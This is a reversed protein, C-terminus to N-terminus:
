LAFGTDGKWSPAFANQIKVLLQGARCLSIETPLKSGVSFRLPLDVQNLAFRHILNAEGLVRMIGHRGAPPWFEFDGSFGAFHPVFDSKDRRKIQM